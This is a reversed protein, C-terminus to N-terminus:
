DVCGWSVPCQLETRCILLNYCLSNLYSAQPWVSALVPHLIWAWASPAWLGSAWGRWQSAEQYSQRDWTTIRLVLFCLAQSVSNHLQACATCTISSTISVGDSHELGFSRSDPSRQFLLWRPTKMQRHRRKSSTGWLFCDHGSDWPFFYFQTNITMVALLLNSPEAITGNRVKSKWNSKM